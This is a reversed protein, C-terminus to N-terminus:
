APRRTIRVPRTKSASTGATSSCFTVPRSARPAHRQSTFRCPSGAGPGPGAPSRTQGGGATQVRIGDQSQCRAPTSPLRERVIM